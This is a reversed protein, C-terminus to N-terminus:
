EGTPTLSEADNAMGTGSREGATRGYAEAREDAISAAEAVASSRSVTNRLNLDFGSFLAHGM